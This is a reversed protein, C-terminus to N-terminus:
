DYKILFCDITVSEAMFNTSDIRKNAYFYLREDVFRYLHFCFETSIILIDCNYILEYMIQM